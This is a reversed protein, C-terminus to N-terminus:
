KWEWNSSFLFKNSNSGSNNTYAKGNNYTLGDHFFKYTGSTTVVGFTGTANLACDEAYLYAPHKICDVANNGNVYFAYCGM